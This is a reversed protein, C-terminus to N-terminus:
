EPGEPTQNGYRVWLRLVFAAATLIGAIALKRYEERNESDLDVWWWWLGTAGSRGLRKVKAAAGAAEVRALALPASISDMLVRKRSM